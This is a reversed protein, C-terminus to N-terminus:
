RDNPVMKKNRRAMKMYCCTFFINYFVYQLRMVIFFVVIVYTAFATSENKLSGSELIQYTIVSNMRFM